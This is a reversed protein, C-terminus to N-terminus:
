SELRQSARMIQVITMYFDKAMLLVRLKSQLAKCMADIEIVEYDAKRLQSLTSMTKLRYHSGREEWSLHGYTKSLLEVYGDYENQHIDRLQSQLRQAQGLYKQSITAVDYIRDGSTLVGELHEGMKELGVLSYDHSDDVPRTIKYSQVEDFLSSLSNRIAVIDSVVEKSEVLIKQAESPSLVM